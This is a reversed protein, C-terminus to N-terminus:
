LHLAYNQPLCKLWVLFIKVSPIVEIFLSGERRSSVKFLLVTEHHNVNNVHPPGQWRDLRLCHEPSSTKGLKYKWRTLITFILIRLEFTKALAVCHGGKKKKLTPEFQQVLESPDSSQLSATKPPIFRQSRFSVFGVGFAIILLTKKQVARELLHDVATHWM